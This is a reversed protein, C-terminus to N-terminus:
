REKKIEKGKKDKKESPVPYSSSYTEEKAKEEDEHSPAEKAHENFSKTKEIQESVKKRNNNRDRSM